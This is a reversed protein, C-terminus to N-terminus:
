KWRINKFKFWVNDFHKFRQKVKNCCMTFCFYGILVFVVLEFSVILTLIIELRLQVHEQSQMINQKVTIKEISERTQNLIM